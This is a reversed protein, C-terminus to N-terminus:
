QVSLNKTIAEALRVAAQMLRTQVTEQFEDQYEATLSRSTDTSAQCSGGHWDCYDVQPMTTVAYSEEAWEVPPDDNWLARNVPTIQKAVKDAWMQWLRNGRAKDIIKTDWVSHLNTPYKDTPRDYFGGTIPQVKNGGQDDAFSVHLPQHIDGVWHGLFILAEARQQDTTADRLAASHHAIGTLVCGSEGCDAAETIKVTDRPVNIFHWSNFPSYIQWGEMDKVANARAEDPFVCADAFSTMSTGDPRKYARTLRMVEDQHAEDLLFFGMRCVTKHGEQGWAFASSTFLAAAVLGLVMARRM